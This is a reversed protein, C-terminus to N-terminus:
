VIFDGSNLMAKNIGSPFRNSSEEMTPVYIDFIDDCTHPLHPLFNSGFSLGPTWLLGIKGNIISQVQIREGTRRFFGHPM